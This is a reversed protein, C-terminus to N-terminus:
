DFQTKIKPVIESIALPWLYSIEVNRLDTSPNTENGSINWSIQKMEDSRGKKRMRNVYQRLNDGELCQCIYVQKNETFLGFETGESAKSQSYDPLIKNKM